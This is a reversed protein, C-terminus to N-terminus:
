DQSAEMELVYILFHFYKSKGIRSQDYRVAILQFTFELTLFMVCFFNITAPAKNYNKGQGSEKNVRKEAGAPNVPSFDMATSGKSCDPTVLM